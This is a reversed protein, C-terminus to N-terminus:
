YLQEEIEEPYILKVGARDRVLLAARRLSEADMGCDVLLLPGDCHLQRQLRVAQDVAYEMEEAAGSLPLAVIGRITKKKEAFLLSAAGWVISLVGVAALFAVLAEQVELM